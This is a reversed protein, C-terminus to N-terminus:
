SGRQRFHASGGPRRRGGGAGGCPGARGTPPPLATLVPLLSSLVRPPGALHSPCGASLRACPRKPCPGTRARAAAGGGRPRLHARRWFAAWWERGLWCRGLCLGAWVFDGWSCVWVFVVEGWRCTVRWSRRAARWSLRPRSPPRRRTLYPCSPGASASLPATCLAERGVAACAVSSPPAPAPRWWWGGAFWGVSWGM